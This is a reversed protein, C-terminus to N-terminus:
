GSPDSVSVVHRLEVDPPSPLASALALAPLDAARRVTRQDGLDVLGAGLVGGGRDARGARREVVPRPGAGRRELAARQQVPDGVQQDAVLVGDGAGLRQVGALAQDLALVVDVVDDPHEPVVGVDRGLVGTADDVGSPGVHDAADHVLGDADAAQDGGPVVRQQLGGPLDRGRRAAPLVNTSLGLSSVGCVAIRSIRGARPPRRQGGPDGVEHEAGARPRARREALVRADVEHREGASQRGALPDHGGRGGRHLLDGELQAALVGVHHEGVGVQSVARSKASVATKRCEPWTQEAPARSTTSSDIWSSNTSSSTPARLPDAEAAREVVVGLGTRQDGGRVALLDLRVDGAPDGLARRQPAAPARGSSGSSRRRSRSGASRARGAAVAGHGDHM